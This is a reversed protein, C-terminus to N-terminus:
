TLNLLKLLSFVKKVKFKSNCSLSFIWLHLQSISHSVFAGVFFATVVLVVVDIVGVSRDVEVFNFQQM